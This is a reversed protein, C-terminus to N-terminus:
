GFLIVTSSTVGGSAVTLIPEMMREKAVDGKTPRVGDARGGDWDPM